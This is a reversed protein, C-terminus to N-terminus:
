IKTYGNIFFEPQDKGVVSEFGAVAKFKDGVNLGPYSNNLHPFMEKTTPSLTFNFKLIITNGSITPFGPGYAINEIQVIERPYLM